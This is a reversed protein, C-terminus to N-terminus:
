ISLISNERFHSNKEKDKTNKEAGRVGESYIIPCELPDRAFSFLYPVLLGLFLISIFLVVFFNVFNVTQTYM